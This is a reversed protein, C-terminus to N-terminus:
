IISILFINRFIYEFLSIEESFYSFKSKFVFNLVFNTSCLLHYTLLSLSHSFNQATRQQPTTKKILLQCLVCVVFVLYQLRLDSGECVRESVVPERKRLGIDLDLVSHGTFQRLVEVIGIGSNTHTRERERERERGRERGRGREGLSEHSLTQYRTLLTQLSFNRM